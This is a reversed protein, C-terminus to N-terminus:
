KLIPLLWKQLGQFLALLRLSKFSWSLKGNKVIKASCDVWYIRSIKFAIITTFFCFFTSTMTFFFCDLVITKFVLSEGLFYFKSGGWEIFPCKKSELTTSGFHAEFCNQLTVYNRFFIVQKCSRLLVIFTKYGALIVKTTCSLLSLMSIM